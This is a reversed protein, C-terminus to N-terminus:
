RSRLRLGRRSAREAWEASSCVLTDGEGGPEVRVREGELHVLWIERGGATSWASLPPEIATWLAVDARAREARAIGVLLIVLLPLAGCSCSCGLLSGLLASLLDV